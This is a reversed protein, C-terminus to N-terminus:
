RFVVEVVDETNRQIVRYKNISNEDAKTAIGNENVTCYDNVECTGDDRVALVGLMGVAAWESRVARPIYPISSDYEPNYVPKTGEYVPNGEDDYVPINEGTEYDIEYKQAPEYRVRNFKDRLVMGNWVDCDGNGLVFPEGSVIGLIYNDNSNAIRIKKKDDFTVFYGVRDEADLNEDEWEFYEAYDATTSASITSAAKVQGNFQVSFANKPASSGTGNGIVFATGITNTENGGTTMAANYHGFAVSMSNTASTHMGMSFSRSGIASSNAGGAHAGYGTAYTRYGESHSGYNGSAYTIYGEAHACNSGSACTNAGEAHCYDSATTSSGEAHSSTGIARTSEGEAHSQDGSAYAYSGEAHSCRGKASSSRGEAHAGYDGAASTYYGEAHGSYNNTGIVSSGCGEVHAGRNGQCKTEYGEAHCEAYASTKYGEAHSYNSSATTKLGEAHSNTGSAVTTNGEMLAGVSPNFRLTSTKGAGETRTTNDATASFLVEYAANTTTATQTVANNTDSTPPTYGLATTVQSKTLTGKYVGYIEDIYAYKWYWTSTGLYNHGSGAGGSASPLLGYGTNSTGLKIWNNNGDAPLLTPYTDTYMKPVQMAARANADSSKRFWGDSNAYIWYSSTTPTEAGSSQNFYSAYIYGNGDRRVITNATKATDSTYGQLKNSNEIVGSITNLFRSKGTVVLDNLQAM